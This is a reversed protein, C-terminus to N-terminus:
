NFKEVVADVNARAKLVEEDAVGCIYKQRKIRM